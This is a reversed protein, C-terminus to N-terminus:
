GRQAHRGTPHIVEHTVIARNGPIDRALVPVRLQMAELIAGSMGESRSTNLVAFAAGLLALLSTKPLCPLLRLGPLTQVQKEVEQAYTKDLVPGVIALVVNRRLPCMAHWRSFAEALDWRLGLHVACQQGGAQGVMRVWTCCM